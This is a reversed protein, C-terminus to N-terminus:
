VGAIGLVRHAFERRHAQSRLIDEHMYFTM